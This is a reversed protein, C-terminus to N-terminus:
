SGSEWSSNSVSVSADNAGVSALIYLINSCFLSPDALILDERDLRLDRSEGRLRNFLIFVLWSTLKMDTWTIDSPFDLGTSYTAHKKM